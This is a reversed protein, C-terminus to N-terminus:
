NWFVWLIGAERRFEARHQPADEAVRMAADVLPKIADHRERDAPLAPHTASTTEGAKLAAQWRLWIEWDEMVLEFEQPTLRKIRFRNTWDNKREDFICRYAHPVGNFDAVGGRPGDWYDIM